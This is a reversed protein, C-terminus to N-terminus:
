NKIGLIYPYPAIHLQETEAPISEDGHWRFASVNIPTRPVQPSCISSSLRCFHSPETHVLACSGGGFDVTAKWKGPASTIRLSSRCRKGGDLWTLCRENEFEGGLIFSNIAPPFEIEVIRYKSIPAANLWRFIVRFHNFEFANTSERQEFFSFSLKGKRIEKLLFYCTLISRGSRVTQIFWVIEYYYVVYGM